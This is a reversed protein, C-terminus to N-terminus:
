LPTVEPSNTRTKWTLLADLAEVGDTDMRLPNVEIAGLDDGLEGALGAITCITEVLVDIDVPQSGRVGDLLRRGRLEDLMEHIDTEDVPLRRLAADDLVEVFIGGFGIALIPGWEPDAVVGVLMELAPSRMPSVLVGDVGARPAGSAAAALIAEHAARVADEGVVDLMVCGLDSKHLIDPSVIKMAVVGFSVAAGVAEDASLALVGPAVPVGAASLLERTRWESWDGVREAAPPLPCPVCTRSRVARTRRLSWRAIGSMAVVANRLGGIVFPIGYEQLLSLTYPSVPRLTQNIVVGPVPAHSLGAGIARCMASAGHGGIPEEWPLDFITAVLGVSPDNAVADILTSFLTPDIVAAGTVDLPNHPTGYSPLAAAVRAVTAQAFTPLDLGLEAGRDAVVDCAGGSISTIGIGPRTLPGTHAALHATVLLDEISDVRIVGYQRFVADIIADDGVLSGTHAQATRATLESTGLKLVVVPKGAANARALAELFLTPRRITEVFMAISRTSEDAVLFDLVDTATVMAENGTTVIHSMGIGTMRAFDLMSMATAGSQAILGVAGAVTPLEQLSSVAIGDVINVFGLHNPGLVLMGLEDATRVLENQARRGEPGSEAYGSSLVVANRIGAAAADVLAAITGAQPVMLFAVDVGPPLEACSSVTAVGHTTVGRRNVLHARDAFGFRVFNAWALSSFLSKDSAGVIAVRKPRFLSQLRDAGPAAIQVIEPHPGTRTSTTPTAVASM